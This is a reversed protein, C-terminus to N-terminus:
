TASVKAANQSAEARDLLYILYNFRDNFHLAALNPPPLVNHELIVPVIDPESDPNAQQHKLAYEAEQLVWQSDKAAQSWFLLFLDCQDIQEYLKKEWRDGPDLSLLDLFFETKLIQLMQVRKLVEKRDMTAYSVFAKEYRRAYDGLLAPQPGATNPDSSIRFKICGILSGDISVRVVCFFSQDSTGQPIAVLFQCFVPQGQWVVSQVPEDVRLANVAFSIEVRAGRKIAIELTRTGKSTASSDMAAAQFSARERQEPLHLFVQIMITDGPRAARPGFVSCDVLDVDQSATANSRVLRGVKELNALAKRLLEQVPASAKKHARRLLWVVVVLGGVLVGLGLSVPQRLRSWPSSPVEAEAKEAAAKEAAAKEAAAKEAEAKEAEAKEAAAKEAAAKEAEAKEKLPQELNPFGPEETGFWRPRQQLPNEFLEKLPNGFSPPPKQFPNRFGQTPRAPPRPPPPRVQALKQGRSDNSEALTRKESGVGAVQGRLSDKEASTARETFEMLEQPQIRKEAEEARIEDTRKELGVGLEGVLYGNLAKGSFTTEDKMASASVAATVIMACVIASLKSRLHWSRRM